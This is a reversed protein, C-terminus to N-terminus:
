FGNWVKFTTKTLHVKAEYTEGPAAHLRTTEPVSLVLDPRQDLASASGSEWCEPDGGTSSARGSLVALLVLAWLARDM